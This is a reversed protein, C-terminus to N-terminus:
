QVMHSIKPYLLFRLNMRRSEKRMHTQTQMDFELMKISFESMKIVRAVM